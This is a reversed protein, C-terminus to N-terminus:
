ERDRSLIRSVTARLSPLDEEVTKWVVEMDVGFYAHSLKDRMGAVQRWPVEPYCARKDDPVNKAAEGIIELARAVAYCTKDDTAFEEFGMGSVFRGIKEISDLIDCLYDRYCRPESM